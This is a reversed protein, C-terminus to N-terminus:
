KVLYPKNALEGIDPGKYFPKIWVLKRQQFSKGHPQRRWHGRVLFRTGSVTKLGSSQKDRSATEDSAIPSINQGVIVYPLATYKRKSKELKHRKNPEAVRLKEDIEKGPDKIQGLDAADSALYLLTNLVIRYFALGDTYFTDDNLPEIVGESAGITMGAKEADPKLEDWNTRLSQELSWDDGLFIERKMTMLATAPPKAQFACIILNRGKLTDVPSPRETLFVSIPADYDLRDKNMDRRGSSGRINHMARVATRSTFVFMCAPFPLQVLNSKLNIETNALHESLNDTVHFVKKGFLSFNLFCHYELNVNNLLSAMHANLQPSQNAEERVSEVSLGTRDSVLQLFAEGVEVACKKLSSDFEDASGITRPDDMQDLLSTADAEAYTVVNPRINRVFDYYTPSLSM